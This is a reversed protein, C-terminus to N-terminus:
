RKIIRHTESLSKNLTVKLFYIGPMLSSLDCNIQNNGVGVSYRDSLLARAQADLVTITATGNDLVPLDVAVIDTIANPYIKFQSLETNYIIRIESYEFAGDFDIQKIHYYVIGYPANTDVISYKLLGSSDGAGNVQNITEFQIGDSSREVLFYDNNLETATHWEILVGQGHKTAEFYVMEIPLPSSGTGYGIFYPFTGDGAGCFLDSHGDSNMDSFIVQSYGGIDIGNLPNDGGTMATFAPVTVSGTNQFYFFTGNNAGSFM